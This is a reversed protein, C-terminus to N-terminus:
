GAQSMTPLNTMVGLMLAHTLCSCKKGPKMEFHRMPQCSKRWPHHGVLTKRPAKRASSKGHPRSKRGLTLSQTLTRMSVLSSVLVQPPTRPTHTNRSTKVRQCKTKMVQPTSGARAQKPMTRKKLVAKSAKPPTLSM